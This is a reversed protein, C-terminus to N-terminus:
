GVGGASTLSAAGQRSHELVRRLFALVVRRADHVDRADAVLVPVDAPLHLEARVRGILADHDDDHAAKNIAVVHPVDAAATFRRRLQASEELTAPRTADVVLVFGLMGEALIDWMFEFREQGPTGFLFLALDPEVGIRGFDMAVTTRQSSGDGETSTLSRETTLVTSDSITGILTTKGADFPGTVVLKATRARSRRIQPPTM